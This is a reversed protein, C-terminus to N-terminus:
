LGKFNGLIALMVRCNKEIGQAAAAYDAEDGGYPDSIEPWFIYVQTRLNPFLKYLHQRHRETMCYIVDAEACMEETVQRAFHGSLDAGYRAAAKQALETAPMGTLANTGASVALLNLDKALVNFIGEAMPSRCTNGSCIFLVQNM